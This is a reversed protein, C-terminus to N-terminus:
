VGPKKVISHALALVKFSIPLNGSPKNITINSSDVSALYVARKGVEPITISVDVTVSTSSLNSSADVDISLLKDSDVMADAITGDTPEHSVSSSTSYTISTASATGWNFTIRATVTEGTAFTGGFHILIHSPILFCEYGSSPTLSVATGYAGDTGPTVSASLKRIRVEPALTETPIIWVWPSDDMNHAITASTDDASDMTVNWEKSYIGNRALTVTVAM